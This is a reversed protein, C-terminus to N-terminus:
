NSRAACSRSNEMRRSKPTEPVTPQFPDVYKSLLGSQQARQRLTELRRLDFFVEPTERFAAVLKGIPCRAFDRISQHLRDAPLRRCSLALAGRPVDCLYKGRHAAYQFWM